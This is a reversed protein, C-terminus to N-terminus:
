IEPLGSVRDDIAASGSAGTASLFHLRSRGRAHAARYSAISRSAIVPTNIEYDRGCCFNSCSL